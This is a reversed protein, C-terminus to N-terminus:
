RADWGLYTHAVHGQLGSVSTQVRERSNESVRKAMEGYSRYTLGKRACRDWIYGSAPLSAATSPGSSREGYFAPWNKEVFDTAYAANSWEHGDASVEADCYLNDLLVFQEAM